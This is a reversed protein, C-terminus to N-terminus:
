PNHFPNPNLGHKRLQAGADPVHDPEARFALNQALSARVAQEVSLREESPTQGSPPGSQASSIPASQTSPTTAVFILCLFIRASSRLADDGSLRKDTPRM